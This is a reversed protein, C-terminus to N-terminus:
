IFRKVTLIMLMICTFGMLQRPENLKDPQGYCNNCECHM